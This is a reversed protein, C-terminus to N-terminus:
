KLMIKNFLYDVLKRVKILFRNIHYKTIFKYNYVKLWNSNNVEIWKRFSRFGIMGDDHMIKVYSMFENLVWPENPDLYKVVGRLQTENTRIREEEGWDLTVNVDRIKLDLGKSQRYMVQHYHFTDEIKGPKFGNDIVLKNFVFDEQRYVFDDDIKDLNSFAVKKGMQSGAYPRLNKPPKYTAAVTIRMPCGFWDYKEQYKVMTDFWGDPLYVDSHLYIFWKSEVHEILKAICKGLSKYHRHNLVEVRPFNKALEISDDIVGGDSLILKKVPIERYISLLNSEWVENTHYLPIIVEVANETSTAYRDVFDAKNYYQEFISKSM